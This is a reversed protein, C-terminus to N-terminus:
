IRIEPEIAIAVPINCDDKTNIGFKATPANLTVDESALKMSPGKTNPVAMPDGINPLIISAMPDLITIIM